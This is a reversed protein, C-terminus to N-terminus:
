GEEYGGLYERLHIRDSNPCKVGWYAHKMIGCIIRETHRHSHPSRYGFRPHYLGRRTLLLLPVGFSGLMCTLESETCLDVKRRPPVLELLSVRVSSQATDLLDATTPRWVPPCFLM